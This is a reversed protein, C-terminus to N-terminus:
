GRGDNFEDEMETSIMEVEDPQSFVFGDFTADNLHISGDFWQLPDVYGFSYGAVRVSNTVVRQPQSNSLRIGVGFSITSESTGILQGTQVVDSIAVNVATLRGYVFVTDADYQVVVTCQVGTDSIPDEGVHVVVGTSLSFASLSEAILMPNFASYMSELEVKGKTVPSYAVIIM